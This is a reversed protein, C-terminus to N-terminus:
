SRIRACAPRRAFFFVLRGPRGTMAADRGERFRREASLGEGGVAAAAAAAAAVQEGSKSAGASAGGDGAADRGNVAEAASDNVGGKSPESLHIEGTNKVKGSM